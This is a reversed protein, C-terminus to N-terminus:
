DDSKRSQQTTPPTDGYDHENSDPDPDEDGENGVEEQSRRPSSILPEDDDLEHRKDTSDHRRGENNGYDDEEQSSPHASGSSSPAASPSSSLGSSGLASASSSSPLGSSHPASSPPLGSSVPQQSSGSSGPAASSSSSPLGSSGLQQVSGSSVPQQSSGSGVLQQQAPGSSALAASSPTNGGYATYPIHDYSEDASWEADEESDYEASGQDPENNFEGGEGVASEQSGVASEQSGVAGSAAAATSSPAPSVSRRLREMRETGSTSPTRTGDDDLNAPTSFRRGLASNLLNSSTSSAINPNLGINPADNNTNKNDDTDNNPETTVIIEPLPPKPYDNDPIDSSGDLNASRYNPTPRGRPRGRVRAWGETSHDDPPTSDTRQGIEHLDAAPYVRRGPASDTANPSTSSRNRQGNGDEDGDQDGNGHGNSRREVGGEGEEEEEGEDEDEEQEGEASGQQGVMSSGPTPGRSRRVRERGETSTTLGTTGTNPARMGIDGLNAPTSFRRELAATLSSDTLATTTIGGTPINHRFTSETTPFINHRPIHTTDNTTTDNGNSTTGNTTDGDGSNGNGGEGGLPAGAGQRLQQDLINSPTLLTGDPSRNLSSRHYENGNETEDM